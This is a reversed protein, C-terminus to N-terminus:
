GYSLFTSKGVGPSGIFLIDVTPIAKGHEIQEEMSGYCHRIGDHFTWAPVTAAEPIAGLNFSAVKIDPRPTCPVQRGVLCVLVATCLTKM